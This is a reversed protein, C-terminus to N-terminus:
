FGDAWPNGSLYKWGADPLLAIATGGDRDLAMQAAHIVAGSSTGAFHGEHTMIEQVTKEAIHSATQWRDDVLSLDAVPPQFPDEQSRMGGIPDEVFPESSHVRIQPFARRMGRSTGTLTGGTGYACVLHDPPTTLPWDRELELSAPLRKALDSVVPQGTSISQGLDGRLLDGVYILFQQPLPKDLGLAERVEAISAEDAAAGAFYVAPDGPLARTLLFSVVVVGIVVPIAQGIRWLVTSLGGKM